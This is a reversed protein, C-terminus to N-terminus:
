KIIQSTEELRVSVQSSTVQAQSSTVQSQHSRHSSESGKHSVFAGLLMNVDELWGDCDDQTVGGFCAGCLLYYRTDGILLLYMCM